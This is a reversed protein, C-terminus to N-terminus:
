NGNFSDSMDVADVSAIVENNARRKIQIEAALHFKVKREKEGDSRLGSGM